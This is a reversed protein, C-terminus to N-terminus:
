PAVLGNGHYAQVSLEVTTNPTVKYAFGAGITGFGRLDGNTNFLDNLAGNTDSVGTLARGNPRAVVGGITVFPMLRGMDYGVRAELDAYNFGRYARNFVSPSYGAGAQVGVVWNNALERDYGVYGGGGFGGRVGKSGTIAFVETGVYLGTWPSPETPPAELAFTPLAPQSLDAGLVTGGITSLAVVAALACVRVGLFKSTM